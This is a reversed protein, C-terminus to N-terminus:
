KVPFHVETVLERDPVEGPNNLYTEFPDIRKNLKFTKSRQM